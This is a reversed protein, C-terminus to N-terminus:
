SFPAVLALPLYIFIFYSVAVMPALIWSLIPTFLFVLLIIFGFRRFQDYFRGVAGPLLASLIGSGDLPPIPILNFTALVLNLFALQLVWWPGSYEPVVLQGELFAIGHVHLVMLVALIGTCVISLLLNSLPGAISVLATDRRIRSFNRVLVPVPKAWGFIMTHGTGMSLLAMAAPALITGIPDIHPIPNLTVRGLMRATHDGLKDATWAHASEHVSLSFLIMLVQFVVALIGLPTFGMGTM